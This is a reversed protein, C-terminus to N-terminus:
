RISRYNRILFAAIFRDLDSTETKIQSMARRAAKPDLTAYVQSAAYLLGYLKELATNMQNRLLELSKTPWDERKELAEVMRKGIEIFPNLGSFGKVRVLETAEGETFLFIRDTVTSITQTSWEQMQLLDLVENYFLLLEAQSRPDGTVKLGLTRALVGITEEAAILRSYIAGIDPVEPADREAFETHSNLLQKEVDEKPIYVKRRGTTSQTARLLGRKEMRQLTAISVGLIRAADKREYFQSM